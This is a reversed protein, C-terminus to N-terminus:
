KHEKSGAAGAKTKDSGSGSKSGSGSDTGSGSSGSSGEGSSGSGSGADSGSKPGPDSKSGSGSSTSSKPKSRNDTAYFGSGKFLIGAPHFVRRLAGGCAGCTTIPDETMRQVVEIRTECDSCVYEYTPM